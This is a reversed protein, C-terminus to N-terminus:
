PLLKETITLNGHEKEPHYEFVFDKKADMGYKSVALHNLYAGALHEQIEDLKAQMYQNIHTLYNVEEASLTVTKTNSSLSDKLNSMHPLIIADLM